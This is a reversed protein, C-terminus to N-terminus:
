NLTEPIPCLQYTPSSSTTDIIIMFDDALKQLEMSDIRVNSDTFSMTSFFSMDATDLIRVLGEGTKYYGSFYTRNSETYDIANWAYAWLGNGLYELDKLNGERETTQSDVRFFSSLENLSHDLVQGYVALPDSHTALTLDERNYLTTGLVLVGDEQIDLSMKFWPDSTKLATGMSIEFEKKVEGDSFQILSLKSDTIVNSTNVSVQRSFFYISTLNSTTGMSNIILDTSLLQSTSIVSQNTSNWRSAMLHKGSNFNSDEELWTIVIENDQEHSEFDYLYSDSTLIQMPYVSFKSDTAGENGSLKQWGFLNSDVDYDRAYFSILLKSDTSEKLSGHSLSHGQLDVQRRWGITGDNELRLIELNEIDKDDDWVSWLVYYDGQYFLIDELYGQDNSQIKISLGDIFGQGDIGAIYRNGQEQISDYLYFTAAYGDDVTLTEAWDDFYNSTPNSFDPEDTVQVNINYTNVLEDDRFLKIQAIDTGLSEGAVLTMQGEFNPLGTGVASGFTSVIGTNGHSGSFDYSAAADLVVSFPIDLTQGPLIRLTKIISAIQDIQVEIQSIYNRSKGEEDVLQLSFTTVGYGVSNIELQASCEYNMLKVSAVSSDGASLLNVATSCSDEDEINLYINNNQSPREFTILSPLNSFKPTENYYRHKTNNDRSADDLTEKNDIDIFPIWTFYWDGEPEIGTGLYLPSDSDLSFSYSLIQNSNVSGHHVEFVDIGKPSDVLLISDEALSVGTQEVEVIIKPDGNTTATQYEVSIVSWDSLSSRDPDIETVGTVNFSGYNSIDGDSTVIMLSHLQPDDNQPDRASVTYTAQKTDASSNVWDLEQGNFRAVASFGPPNDFVEGFEDLLQVEFTIQDGNSLVGTTTSDVNVSIDTYTVDNTIKRIQSGVGKIDQIIYRDNSGFLAFYYVTSSQPLKTSIPQFSDWTKQNKELPIDKFSLSGRDIERIRSNEVWYIKKDDNSMSLASYSLTKFNQRDVTELIIGDNYDYEKYKLYLLLAESNYGGTAVGIIRYQGYYPHNTFDLVMEVNANNLNYKYLKGDIAVFLDDAELHIHVLENEGVPVTRILTRQISSNVFELEYIYGDNTAALNLGENQYTNPHSTFSSYDYDTAQHVVGVSQDFYYLHGDDDLMFLGNNESDADEAAMTIPERFSTAPRPQPQLEFYRNLLENNVQVPYVFEQTMMSLNGRSDLRLLGLSTLSMDITEYAGSAVPKRFTEEFHDHPDHSKLYLKGYGSIGQIGSSGSSGDFPDESWQYIPGGQDNQGDRLSMYYDDDVKHFSTIKFFEREDLVFSDSDDNLSSAQASPNHYLLLNIQISGQEETIEYVWKNVADSLGLYVASVSSNLFDINKSQLINGDFSLPMQGVTLGSSLIAQIQQKNQGANILAGIDVLHLKNVNNSDLSAFILRTYNLNALKHPTQQLDILKASTVIQEDNSDQLGFHIAKDPSAFESSKSIFFTLYEIQFLDQIQEAPTFSGNNNDLIKKGHPIQDLRVDYFSFPHSGYFSQDRDPVLTIGSPHSRTLNLPIRNSSLHVQDGQLGTLAISKIRDIEVIIADSKGKPNLGRLSIEVVDDPISQQIQIQPQDDDQWISVTYTVRPSGNETLYTVEIGTTYISAEINLTMQDAFVDILDSEPILQLDGPEPVFDMIDQTYTLGSNHGQFIQSNRGYRDKAVGGDLLTGSFGHTYPNVELQAVGTEYSVPHGGIEFFLDLDVNSPNYTFQLLDNAEVTQSQSNQISLNNISINLNAPERDDIVLLGSQKKGRGMLFLHNESVMLQPDGLILRLESPDKGQIATRANIGFPPLAKRPSGYTMIVRPTQDIIQAIFHNRIPSTISLDEIHAFISGDQKAVVDIVRLDEVANSFKNANLTDASSVMFIESQNIDDLDVRVVSGKSTVVLQDGVWFIETSQKDFTFQVQQSGLPLQTSTFLSTIPLNQNELNVEYFSLETLSKVVIILKKDQWDLAFDLHKVDPLVIDKLGLQNESAYKLTNRDISGPRPQADIAQLSPRNGTQRELDQLYEEFEASDLGVENAQHSDPDISILRQQHATGRINLIQVEGNNFWPILETLSERTSPSYYHSTMDHLPLSKGAKKHIIAYANRTNEPDDNSPQSISNEDPALLMTIDGNPWLLTQNILGTEFLGDSSMLFEVRGDAKLLNYDLDFAINEYSQSEDSDSDSNRSEETENHSVAVNESNYDSNGSSDDDEDGFIYMNLMLIDSGVSFLGLPPHRLKSIAAPADAFGTLPNMLKQAEGQANLKYVSPPESNQSTNDNDYPAALLYPVQQHVMLGYLDLRATAPNFSDKGAISNVGGGFTGLLEFNGASPGAVVVKYLSVTDNSDDGDALAIALSSNDFKQLNQIIGNLTSAPMASQSQVPNSIDPSGLVWGVTNNSPDLSYIADGQNFYILGQVDVMAYLEPSLLLSDAATTQNTGVFSTDPLFVKAGPYQDIDKILRSARNSDVSQANHGAINVINQGDFKRIVVLGAAPEPEYSDYTFSIFSGKQGAVYQVGDHSILPYPLITRYFQYESNAQLNLNSVDPLYTLLRMVNQSDRKFLVGTESNYFVLDEDVEDYSVSAAGGVRDLSFFPTPMDFGLFGLHENVVPKKLQFEIAKLLEGTSSHKEIRVHNSGQQLDNLSINFGTQDANVAVSDTKLTQNIRVKVEQGPFQMGQLQLTELPAMASALQQETIIPDPRVTFQATETETLFGASSKALYNITVNQNFILNFPATDSLSTQNPQSSDTTYFVKTGSHLSTFRIKVRELFVGNLDPDLVELSINPPPAVAYQFNRVKSNIGNPWLFFYRFVTNQEFNLELHDSESQVAQNQPNKPNSGDLTYIIQVGSASIDMTLPAMHLGSPPINLSVSSLDELEAVDVTATSLDSSFGASSEAFYRIVTDETFLFNVSGLKFESDKSPESGDLTYYIITDPESALLRVPSKELYVGDVTDDLFEVEAEPPPVVTYQLTEVGSRIGDDSQVFYRFIASDELSIQLLDDVMTVNSNNEQKPDSGDLTYVIEAGNAQVGLQLPAVYLGPEPAILNVEPLQLSKRELSVQIPGSGTVSTLNVTSSGSVIVDGYDDLFDVVIQRNLGPPINLVGTNPFGDFIQEMPQMQPGSVRVRIEQVQDSELYSRKESSASSFAQTVRPQQLREFLALYGKAASQVEWEFENVTRWMTEDALQVKVQHFGTQTMALNLSLKRSKGALSYSNLIESSGDPKHHTVRLKKLSDSGQFDGVIDLDLGDALHNIRSKYSLKKSNLNRKFKQNIEEPFIFLASSKIGVQSATSAGGEVVAILAAGEPRVQAHARSTKVWLPLGALVEQMLLEGDSHSNVPSFYRWIKSAPDYQWVFEIGNEQTFLSQPSTNEILGPNVFALGPKTIEIILPSDSSHILPRLTKEGRNRAWYGYGTRLDQTVKYITKTKPLKANQSVIEWQNGHIGIAINWNDAAWTISSLLALALVCILCNIAKFSGHKVSGLIYKMTM